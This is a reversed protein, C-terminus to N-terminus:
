MFIEDVVSFLKGGRNQTLHKNKLPERGEALCKPKGVMQNSGDPDLVSSNRREEIPCWVVGLM